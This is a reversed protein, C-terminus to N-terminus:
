PTLWDYILANTGSDTPHIAIAYHSENYTSEIEFLGGSISTTSGILVGSSRRYLRVPISDIETTGSCLFRNTFNYTSSTDGQGSSTATLYWNYDIGSPTQMVVYVVQGSNTGSVTSGIQSDDYADYFVADYVYNPSDGSITTTLQLTHSTGYVTSLHTPIPNIFTFVLVDTVGFSVLNDWNSYYTAKIWAASRHINSIRVEDIDANAWDSRADTDKTRAAITLPNHTALTSDSSIISDNDYVGNLYLVYNNGDKTGAVYTMDGGTSYAMGSNYIGFSTSRLSLFRGGSGSNQRQELITIYLGETGNHIVEVTPTDSMVFASGAILDDNNGDFDLCKGIKGDILNDTVMFGEPTFNNGSSTSDLICGSGGSPDQAMHWVGAFDGDWVNQAVTDGTDGVHGSNIQQSSDYYLYLVTDTGSVITPVKTWLIAKENVDDWREIEVFLEAGGSATTVAIKKRNVYSGSATTLEDFVSTTDRGTQGSSSSLSVLVPFDILDENVKNSDITLILRNAWAAPNFIVSFSILDDM